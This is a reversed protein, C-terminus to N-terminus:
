FQYGLRIQTGNLNVREDFISPHPAFTYDVEGFLGNPLSAGLAIKGGLTTRNTRQSIPRLDTESIVTEQKVRGWYIGVGTGFYPRFGQLEGKPDLSYKAMLGVGVMSAEVRGITAERHNKIRNFYDAYVEVTTPLFADFRRLNAGIGFSLFNTGLAERTNGNSPLYGGIRVLFPGRPGMTQAQVAGSGILTLAGIACAGAMTRLLAM